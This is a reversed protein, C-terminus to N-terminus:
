RKDMDAAASQYAQPAAREVSVKRRVRLVLLATVGVIACIGCVQHGRDISVLYRLGNDDSLPAFPRMNSHMISDLFVNSYAGFIAGITMATSLIRPNLGLWSRQDDSLRWNWLRLLGQCIRRGFLIVFGAVATAGIYTHFVRHIPWRGQSIYFLPEMDIIVQTLGFAVLSFHKPSVAKAVTAPGFHFPTVPM